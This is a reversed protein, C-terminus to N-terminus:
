RTVRPRGERAHKITLVLIAGILALVLSEISFSTVSDSGPMSLNAIAGGLLAGAIGWIIDQIIGDHVRNFFKSTVLGVILGIIAWTLISMREGLNGKRATSSAFRLGFAFGQPYGGTTDTAVGRWDPNGFVIFGKACHSHAPV